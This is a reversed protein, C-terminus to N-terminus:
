NKSQQVKAFCFLDWPLRQGPQSLIWITLNIRWKCSSFQEMEPRASHPHCRRLQSTGSTQDSTFVVLDNSRKIPSLVLQSWSPYGALSTSYNIPAPSVSYATVNLGVIFTLSISMWITLLCQFRRQKNM